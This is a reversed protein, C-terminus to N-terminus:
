KMKDRLAKEKEPGWYSCDLEIFVSSYALTEDTKLILINFLKAAEAIKPFVDDHLLAQTTQGELVKKLQERYADVGKAMDETMSEMEKDTYFVPKAHTSANLATVVEELTKILPQSTYLTTIGQGSQWPYAKDVVLIWNRHGMLPLTRQFENKWSMANREQMMREREARLQEARERQAALDPAVRATDPPNPRPRPVADLRQEPRVPPPLPPEQAWCSGSLVAGTVFMMGLTKKM